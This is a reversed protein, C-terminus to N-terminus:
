SRFPPKSTIVSFRPTRPVDRGGHHLPNFLAYRPHFESHPKNSSQANKAQDESTHRQACTEQRKAGPDRVGLADRDTRDHDLAVLTDFGVGDAGIEPGAGAAPEIRELDVFADLREVGGPQELVHPGGHLAPPQDDEHDLIRHDVADGELAVPLDLVLLELSFNLRLLAAGQRPRDDLGVDRAQDLDIAAAAAEVDPDLRLDDFQRVIADVQHEFDGFAHLGADLADFEDAVAVIRVEAQLVDDLGRLGAQQREQLGVVDVIRVTDLGVPLQQAPEIQLVAEDVDADHRRDAFVIRRSAAEEDGERDLLALLVADRRDVHLRVHARDIRRQQPGLQPGIRAVDVVGLEDFLRDLVHRDFRRPEAIRERRHPRARGAIGCLRVTLRTKTM